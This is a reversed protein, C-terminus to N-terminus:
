TTGARSWCGKGPPRGIRCLLQPARSSWTRLPLLDGPLVASYRVAGLEHPGDPAAPLPLWAAALCVFPHCRCCRPHVERQLGEEQLREGGDGSKAPMTPNALPEKGGPDGPAGSFNIAGRWSGAPRLHNGPAHVRRNPPRSHGAPVAGRLVGGRGSAGKGRRVLFPRAGYVSEAEVERGEGNKGAPQRPRGARGAPRSISNAPSSVDKTNATSGWGAVSLFVMVGEQIEGICVAGIGAIREDLFSEGFVTGMPSIGLRRSKRDGGGGGCLRLLVRRTSGLPRASTRLLCTGAILLAAGVGLTLM